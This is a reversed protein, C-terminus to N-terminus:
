GYLSRPINRNRSNQVVNNQKDVRVLVGNKHTFHPRVHSTEIESVNKAVKKDGQQIILNWGVSVALDDDKGKGGFVKCQTLFKKSKIGSYGIEPSPLCYNDLYQNLLGEMQMKNDSNMKVGFKTNVGKKISNAVTPPLALLEPYHLEFWDYARWGGKNMEIHIKCGYLICAMAIQIYDDELKQSRHCYEFTIRKPLLGYERAMISFGLDSSDKTKTVNDDEAPDLTSTYLDKVGKIPPEHMIGYQYNPNPEFVPEGGNALKLRGCISDTPTSNINDIQKNIITPNGVGYAATSLFADDENIPYKQIFKNYIKVSGNERKKRNYHIWRLSELIEDNGLEDMILEHYGWFPFQELDYMKHNKWFEMLGAGAKDTEGMTGFIIPTGVRIGDQILCDEANAFIAEIDETEGAEDLILEMYQNGAHNVAGPACVFISSETGSVLKGRNGFQDKDYTAFLMMDRRDTSTAMRLFDSQNRYIFKVKGLFSQSDSIGKSNAGIDFNKIFQCNHVMDVGAKWSMGVQRRKVCVIGKGPTNQIRELFEFWELDRTRFDPRIKGRNKNKIKTHNLYYYYKGPLGDYGHVCRRLEEAQWAQMARVDNGFDPIEIHTYKKTVKRPNTKRVIEEYDEMVKKEIEDIYDGTRIIAIIEDKEEAM